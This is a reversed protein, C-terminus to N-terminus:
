RAIHGIGQAANTAGTGPVVNNNSLPSDSVRSEMTKAVHASVCLHGAEFCIRAERGDQLSNECVAEVVSPRWVSLRWTSVIGSVVGSRLGLCGGLVM